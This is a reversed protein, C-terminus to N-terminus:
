PQFVGKEDLKKALSKMFTRVAGIIEEAEEESYSREVHMTANRWADKVASFMAAIDEYFDRHKLFVAHAAAKKKLEADSMGRLAKGWNGNENLSIGLSLSVSNLGIEMTRMLHFVSATYQGFAFCAGAGKIESLSSPFRNRVDEGFMAETKGHYKARSSPVYFFLQARMEDVLGEKLEKIRISFVADTLEPIDRVLRHAARSSHECGIDSMLKAIVETSKGLSERRVKDEDPKGEVEKLVGATELWRFSDGLNVLKHANLNLMDYLSFLACPREIWPPFGTDSM